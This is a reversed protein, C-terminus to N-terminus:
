EFFSVSFLTFNVSSTKRISIRDPIPNMDRREWTISPAPNGTFTCTLVVYTRELSDFPSPSLVLSPEVIIFVCNYAYKKLKGTINLFINEAARSFAGSGESRRINILYDGGDQLEIDEIILYTNDDQFSYRGGDTIM